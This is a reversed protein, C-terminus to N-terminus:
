PPHIFANVRLITRVIESQELPTEAGGSDSGNRDIFRAWTGLLALRPRRAFAAVQRELRAPLAVDDADMRALLDGRALQLGRNLTAILGLNHPNNVVRVRRDALMSLRDVAGDTSGDNVILLEFDQFTQNLISDVAEYLMDGANFVPMLVTVM